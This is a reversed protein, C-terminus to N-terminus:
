RGFRSLLAVATELDMQPPPPPIGAWAAGIKDTVAPDKLPARDFWPRTRVPAHAALSVDVWVARHDEHGALALAGPRSTGMDSVARGWSVPIAVYDLRHWGGTSDRWTGGTAAAGPFEAFTSPLLLSHRALVEHLAAGPETEQEPWHDGVHASVRSGM